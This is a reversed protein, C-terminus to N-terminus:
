AAASSGDDVQTLQIRDPLSLASVSGTSGSSGSGGGGGCGAVLLLGMGLLALVLVPLRKIALIGRKGCNKQFM